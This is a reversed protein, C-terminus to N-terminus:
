FEGLNPTGGNVISNVFAIIGGMGLCAAGGILQNGWAQGRGKNWGAWCCFFVGVGLTAWMAITIGTQIAKIPRSADGNLISQAYAPEVLGIVAVLGLTLPVLLHRMATVSRFTRVLFHNMEKGGFTFNDSIAAARRDIAFPTGRRL